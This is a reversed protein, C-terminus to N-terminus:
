STCTKNLFFVFKGIDVTTIRGDQNFDYRVAYPPGPSEENLLPVYFGVDITSVHQSDDLDVPWADPGPENGPESSTACQAEPDTGLSAEGASTFGDCDADGEPVRWVPLAQGQNVWQPCNDEADTVGDGDADPLAVATGAGPNMRVLITSSNDTEDEEELRGNPDVDLTLFYDGAALGTVDIEQGPLNWSYTDGWGVSMGQSGNGCTDYVADDPSGPLSGDVMDTDMVCFTTKNGIRNSGGPAGVPQLTYLAYGEFHFHFHSQHWVFEGALADRFSGDDAYIRQYVKQQRAQNDVEGARLELVGAGANWSTISFRLNTRAGAQEVVLQTAPLAKL